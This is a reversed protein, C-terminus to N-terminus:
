DFNKAYRFYIERTFPKYEIDTKNTPYIFYENGYFLPIYAYSDIVSEEASSYLEVAENLSGAKAVKYLIGNLHINGYGCLEAPKGDSFPRLFGAPSNEESTIEVLAISFSGESLKMEYENMSVVEIGCFFDLNEQWQETILNLYDSGSFSEPVTIKVGDIAEINMYSLSLKWMEAASKPDYHELSNDAVIDRYSKGLITVGPPIIGYAPILNGDSLEGYASRTFSSALASRIGANSFYEAKENFLLGYAKTAYAKSNNGAVLKKDYEELVTCDIDGKSFDASDNESNGTIFYNLSYPYVLDEASNSKNRRMIIYNNDWYPDFNWEKMYFAGNSATTEAALGYRGKTSEFFERSCPMAASTTLLELFDYYPYELEIQLTFEDAAKVGLERLPMNGSAVASANKICSFDEVYPSYLDKPNFIRQFAFVFDEATVKAKYGNVSEWYINEKLKFIYTLGDESVSYTEACAPAISGDSNMRVLGEFMNAIVTKSSIDEALQPDLNKPNYELNIKFTYGSGDEEKCASFLSMVVTLVLLCAFFRLKRKKM